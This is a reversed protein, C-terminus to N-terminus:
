RVNSYNHSMLALHSQASLISQGGSRGEHAWELGHEQVLSVIPVQVLDPLLKYSKRGQDDSTSLYWQADVIWTNKSITTGGPVKITKSAQKGGSKTLLLWYSRGGMEERYAAFAAYLSDPKIGMGFIKTSVLQVKRQKAVNAAAHITQQQWRGVTAMFPCSDFEVHISECKRCTACACPYTRTYLLEPKDAHVGAFEYTSNSGPISDADADAAYDLIAHCEGAEALLPRGAGDAIPVVKLGPKVGYYLWFYNSASFMGPKRPAETETRREGEASGETGPAQCLIQRQRAMRKRKAAPEGSAVTRSTPPELDAAESHSAGLRAGSADFRFDGGEEEEEADMETARVSEEGAEQAAAEAEPDDAECEATVEAVEAMPATAPEAMEAEGAPEEEEPSPVAVGLEGLRAAIAAAAEVTPAEAVADAVEEESVEVAMPPLEPLPAVIEDATVGERRPRPLHTACFYYVDHTSALRAKQNREATRCLHKADKGYADHPGKFHHSAAFRHILEVGHIRSPFTAIKVFNKKGKYQSRCGDSFIYVRKLGLRERYYSVIDDLAQNHFLASGKAESFIRWVDTTVVREGDVMRPSHTVIFVDMNSRPPHECTRTAYAKHEYQASFDTSICCEDDEFTAYTLHRNHMTWRDIWDHPSWEAFLAELREMLQKRTGKVTM